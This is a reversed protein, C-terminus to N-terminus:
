DTRRNEGNIDPGFLDSFFENFLSIVSGVIIVIFMSFLGGLISEAGMARGAAIVKNQAEAIYKQMMLEMEANIAEDYIQRAVRFAVDSASEVAPNFYPQARSRWTGYEVYQAYDATAEAEIIMGGGSSSLSSKLFGTDVPVMEQSIRMFTDSFVNIAETYDIPLGLRPTRNPFGWDSELNIKCYLGM